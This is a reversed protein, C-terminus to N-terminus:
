SHSDKEFYAHPIIFILVGKLKYPKGLQVSAEDPNKKYYKM